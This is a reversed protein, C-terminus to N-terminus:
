SWQGGGFRRLLNDLRTLDDSILRTIEKGSELLFARRDDRPRAAAATELAAVLLDDVPLQPTSVLIRLFDLRETFGRIQEEQMPFVPALTLPPQPPLRHVFAGERQYGVALASFEVPVQRNVQSDSLEEPAAGEAVAMQRAFEDDQISIDYILGVVQSAGSQAEAMCFSGFIPLNPEPTRLASVFGRTSCRTVRGITDQM